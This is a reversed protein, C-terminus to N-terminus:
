FFKDLYVMALPQWTQRFIKYVTCHIKVTITNMYQLIKSLALDYFTGNFPLILFFLQWSPGHICKVLNENRYHKIITKTKNFM